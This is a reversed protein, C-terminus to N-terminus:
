ILVYMDFIQYYINYLVQSNAVLVAIGIPIFVIGFFTYLAIVHKPTLIPKWAPLRQQRWRSDLSSLNNIFIKILHKKKEFFFLFPKSPPRRSYPGTDQHKHWPNLRQLFEMKFLFVKRTENKREKKKGTKKEKKRV